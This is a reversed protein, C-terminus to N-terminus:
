GKDIDIDEASVGVSDNVSLSYWAEALKKVSEKLGIMVKHKFVKLEGAVDEWERGQLVKGILIGEAVDGLVPSAAPTTKFYHEALLSVIDTAAEYTMPGYSYIWLRDRDVPSLSPPDYNKTIPPEMYLMQRAISIELDSYTDYLSRLLKSKFVRTSYEVLRKSLTSIPKMVLITYEGSVPNRDPSIHLVKFGNKLWFRLLKENVGFGSGLWDLGEDRTEDYIKSLMFSGIGKDQVEPHTAIRVIRLGRMYGYERIRHHKLMRDPIINGPIKDGRLLSEIVEDELGGEYAAQIAGVVKGGRVTRAIRVIHHPADALIALDDPENRYHALVYISFLKRLTEEGDPSFLWYPDVKEYLLNGSVIDELDRKDLHDAEADLILADFLWKEVPDDKGYRIPEDMDVHKVITSPDEKVTKLFRISFGRGAGEYGHITSAFVIRRHAKWIKHLLPVHIGSAEDVAVIDGALKPIMLPEWYELSFGDGQVEIIRGNKEKPKPNMKLRQATRIALDFLSQVSDLSPATVLIRVRHKHRRLTYALGILGIGVACSKGRGRDATVVLIKKKGRPPKEYFWEMEKIVKVQDQTLALQYTEVPYLTKEPIRIARKSGGRPEEPEGSLLRRRDSVYVFIGKNHELLKRKFWSIFIHRPENYGPVLLNQKFITMHRDWEDWKPVQFVILGGGEVVGTLRGVDNPKLDNSLDLVLSQFTTGLYKESVEYVATTQKINKSKGKVTKKVIEKRLLADEYEDHFVYLLSIKKREHKRLVKEYYLLLRATLSGIVAPDSGSLVVLVRHNNEIASSIAKGIKTQIRQFGKPTYEQLNEAIEAAKEEIEKRVM